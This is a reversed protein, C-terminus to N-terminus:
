GVPAIAHIEMLNLRMSGCNMAAGPSERSAPQVVVRLQIRRAHRSRLPFEVSRIPPQFFVALIM